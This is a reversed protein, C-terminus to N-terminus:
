QVKLIVLTMDDHQPAGKTFEDVATMIHRIIEGASKDRSARVAEILRLEGFDDRTRDMAETIGDTYAVVMDGPKLRVEEAKYVALRTMGVGPGTPKLFDLPGNARILLPPNHGANAYRLTRLVPDYLAYFLTAFHSKPSMDYLLLNVNRTFLALDTVSNMTQGRVSAQLAAMLLAAPMGKGSVDGVAFMMENDPLESFDYYDGGVSQAPRCGGACDVNRLQPVKSPFLRRQVDRAIAMERDYQERQAIEHAVVATLKTNELSLATQAAVLRLLRIDSSSYPEESRKGGLSIMGLVGNKSLVPLLLHTDLRSWGDPKPPHRPDIQDVDPIEPLREAVMEPPYGITFAPQYGAPQKLLIALRPVHMAQSIRNGVMEVLPGPEVVTRVEETLETLVHEANYADRFFRRDIAQTLRKQLPILSAVAGAGVLATAVELSQSQESEIARIVYVAVLGGVLWSAGVLANKALAYQMGLRLVVRIDLAQEVVIIYALVVPFLAMMLFTFIVIPFPAAGMPPRGLALSWLLLLFTPTLAVYSGWLLLKARRRADPKEIVANQIGMASFFLGIAAMSLILSIFGAPRMIDWLARASQVNHARVFEFSFRALSLLLLPAGLAWAAARLRRFGHLREPFELGLLMMWIGWTMPAGVRFLMGLEYLPTPWRGIDVPSQIMGPFSIMLGLLIWSRRDLPRLFAVTFGLLMSFNPLLVQTILLPIPTAGRPPNRLTLSAKHEAGGSQSRWTIIMTDGPKAKALLRSLTLSGTIPQGNISTLQDGHKLGFGRAEPRVLGVEPPLMTFELPDSVIGRSYIRRLVDYSYTALYIGALVALAVLLKRRAEVSLRAM